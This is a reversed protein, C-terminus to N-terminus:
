SGKGWGLLAWLKDVLRQGLTRVRAELLPNVEGEEVQHRKVLDPSRQLELSKTAASKLAHEMSERRLPKVLFRHIQGQNILRSLLNIDSLQSCVVTVLYPYHRKLTTVLDDIERDVNKVDAIMVGVGSEKELIELVEQSTRAFLTKGGSHLAKVEQYTANDQDVVLIDVLDQAVEQKVGLAHATEQAIKVASDITAKLEENRWPKTVYRYVEGDNVARIVAELDSYGTLLIRMTAPSIDRIQRLAEVGIMGPMRQDCVVVHIHNQRVIEVAEPGSSAVFVNYIRGFLRKMARLVFDEDDVFLINTTAASM